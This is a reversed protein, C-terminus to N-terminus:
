QQHQAWMPQGQHQYDLPQTSHPRQVGQQQYYMQAANVNGVGYHNNPDPYTYDTTQPANAPMGPHPSQWGNMPNNNNNNLHPSNNGSGTQQQGNTTPPELIQPLHASSSPNSTLSPRSQATNGNVPMPYQQPSQARPSPQMENRLHPPVAAMGGNMANMYYESAQRQLQPMGNLGTAPSGTAARDQQQPLPSKADGSYGDEEDSGRSRNTSMQVRSALAAATAAESEEITGTHHNQHRTLTTRRTFTKQCDAYPCKYPRKGSHIRRHRALSSSDSFPKGCRECMHPKEGTHVRSHVTLASRQIFQKGCGPHDCVHPRVGSHIREHRALDSRRAFGKQCTSCAFAKPLGSSGTSARGGDMATQDTSQPVAQQVAGMTAGAQTQYGQDQTTNPHFSHQLLPMNNNQQMQNPSPYRMGNTLQAAIQQYAVSNQPTQSSYRSSHDSTHPSVGRESGNESKIRNNGNPVYLNQAYHGNSTAVDHNMAIPLPVEYQMNRHAFGGAAERCFCDIALGLFFASVVREAANSCARIESRITGLVVSETEVSRQTDWSRDAIVGLLGTSFDSGELEFREHHRREAPRELRQELRAAAQELLRRLSLDHKASLILDRRQFATSTQIIETVAQHSKGNNRRQLDTWWIRSGGERRVEMHIPM